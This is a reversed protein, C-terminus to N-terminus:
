LQIRNLVKQEILSKLDKRLVPKYAILREILLFHGSKKNKKIIKIKNKSTMIIISKIAQQKQFNGVVFALILRSHIYFEILFFEFGFEIQTKFKKWSFKYYVINSSSEM